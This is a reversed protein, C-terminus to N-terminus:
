SLKDEAAKACSPPGGSTGAQAFRHLLAVALIAALIRIM